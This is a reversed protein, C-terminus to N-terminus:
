KIYKFITSQVHKTIKKEKSSSLPCNSIFPDSYSDFQKPFISHALVTFVNVCSKFM